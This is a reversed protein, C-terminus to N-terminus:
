LLEIGFHASLLKGLLFRILRILVENSKELQEDLDIFSVLRLFFRHGVIVRM